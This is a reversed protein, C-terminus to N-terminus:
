HCTLCGSAHQRKNVSNWTNSTKAKCRQVVMTNIFVVQIVAEKNAASLISKDTTGCCRLYTMKFCGSVGSHTEDLTLWSFEVWEVRFKTTQDSAESVALWRSFFLGFWTVCGCPSFLDRHYTILFVSSAFFALWVTNTKISTCSRNKLVHPLFSLAHHGLTDDVLVEFLDCPSVGVM